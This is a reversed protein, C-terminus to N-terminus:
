VNWSRKGGSIHNQKWFSSLGHGDISVYRGLWLNKSRREVEHSVIPENKLELDLPDKIKNHPNWVQLCLLQSYLPTDDIVM